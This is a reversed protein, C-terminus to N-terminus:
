PEVALGHSAYLRGSIPSVSLEVVPVWEIEDEMTVIIYAPWKGRAAAATRDTEAALGILRYINGGLDSDVNVAFYRHTM